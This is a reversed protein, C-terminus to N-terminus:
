KFIKGQNFTKGGFDGSWSFYENVMKKTEDANADMKKWNYSEYDVQWDSSLEFALDHGKWIWVGSITSSEDTGFLIVSGFANKRMKDLRQFMGTILNCSMYIKTLEQPYKYEGYWISYNEKDFKEWFYPVSVTEAENSYVRKFDDMNFNGKPYKEFPDKSKPELALIAETEDMEEEKDGSAKEQKKSEKSKDQKEQKKQEKEPKEAKKDKSAGKGQFEAYKKADFQAMKECFKFEGIVAKFEPQNVLTTFWRNVNGFPERFSPELVHEYLLFLNASVAIDAQTIREGVLYTATLLHDNLLKLVKKIDEKAHETTQKNYQFIGLCPFVWTCAAPLIENDAVNIWKLIEAQEIVTKGRLQDTGVYHAIANSEYLTIKGDGSEYAPVKGLPFKHLFKDAKNTEGFIFEPPQSAVKIKTGSFQAAILVKHARFNGPYTYLTGAAM